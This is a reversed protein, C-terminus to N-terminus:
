SWPWMRDRDLEADNGITALQDGGSRVCLWKLAVTSEPLCRLGHWANPGLRVITGASVPVVDDDIAMEGDGDLFIYIEELQNHTHWFPSSQGPETSNVSLGMFTSALDKEVFKKGPYPSELADWSSTPGVNAVSYSTM